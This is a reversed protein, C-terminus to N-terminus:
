SNISVLEIEFNLEQGALPHNFDLIVESEKLEHIKAFFPGNPSNGQVVKGLELEVDSEFAERPVNRFAEPVHTGYAEEPALTVNKVEGEAMGVMAADFGQIMQGSGVTFQLTDGRERSNDFETGDTLTGKYHVEVNHGNKVKM